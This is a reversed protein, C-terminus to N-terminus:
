EHQQRMEEQLAIRAVILENYRNTASVLALAALGIEQQLENLRKQYQEPVEPYM